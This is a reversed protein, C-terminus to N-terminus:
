LWLISKKFKTIDDEKASMIPTAGKYSISTVTVGRNLGYHSIIAKCGNEVSEPTNKVTRSVPSLHKLASYILDQWNQAEFLEKGMLEQLQYILKGRRLSTKTIDITKAM